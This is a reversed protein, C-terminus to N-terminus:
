DCRDLHGTDVSRGLVETGQAGDRKSGDVYGVARSRFSRPGLAVCVM